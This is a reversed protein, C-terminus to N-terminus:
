LLFDNQSSDDTLKSQKTKLKHLAVVEEATPIKKTLNKAEQNEEMHLPDTSADKRGPEMHSTITDIAYKKFDTYGLEDMRAKILTWEDFSFELKKSTSEEAIIREILAEAIPPIGKSFWGDVTRKSSYCVEALWERSKGNEKLWKKLYDPNM